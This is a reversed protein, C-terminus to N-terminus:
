QTVVLDKERNKRLWNKRGDLTLNSKLENIDDPELEEFTQATDGEGVCM